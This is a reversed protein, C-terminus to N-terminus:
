YSGKGSFIAPLTLAMIKLDEWLSYHQIYDIELRVRDDLPLDARGNVQM